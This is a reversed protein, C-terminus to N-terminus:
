GEREEPEGLGYKEIKRLLSFRTIGLRRAAQSRNGGSEALAARIAGVELAQVREPLTGAEADAAPEAASRRLEASLEEARIPGEDLLTLRRMENRLQRVNGPWSCRELVALAEPTLERRPRGQEAAELSLFHEALLRVDGERRRLPPLELLVVKLRYYLDERFRGDEVAQHLDQNTAAILRVDVHRVRDSGLRRVEGEQLVRLLRQQMAPSMEGVEDLFLTGGDAEEFRGPRARVAGTFAGKVHGFLESELLTDPLAGCNEVVFPRGARPGGFHLARAVLEKGTGSEGQLLIPVDSEMVREMRDFLEQMAPSAGVVEGYRVADVTRLRTLAEAEAKVRRGLQRQLRANRRKLRALTARDRAAGLATGAAAALGALLEVEEERFAGVALRHDVLLLGIVEGQHRLPVALLSRLGLDSISAVGAFEGDRAADALLLPGASDLARRLLTQSLKREPAPVAERAFNRGLALGIEGDQVLFVFGREARTLSVAADILLEAAREVADAGNLGRLVGLLTQLMDRERSLEQTRTSEVAALRSGIGGAVRLLTSGVRIVDGRGIPRRRVREGSVWTGNASDLDVVFAEQGLREIRCHRRSAHPDEIRIECDAGRGVTAADGGVTVLREINDREVIIELPESMAGPYARRGHVSAAARVPRPPGFAQREGTRPAALAAVGAAAVLVDVQVFALGAAQGAM